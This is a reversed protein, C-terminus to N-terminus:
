TLTKCSLHVPSIRPMSLIRVAKQFEPGMAAVEADTPRVKAQIQQGNWGLVKNNEKMLEGWDGMRGFYLGDLTETVDM